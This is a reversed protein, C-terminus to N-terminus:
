NEFYATNAKVLTNKRVHRLKFLRKAAELSGSVRALMYFCVKSWISDRPINRSSQEREQSTMTQADILTPSIFAYKM